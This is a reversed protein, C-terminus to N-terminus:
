KAEDARMRRWEEIHKDLQALIFANFHEAELLRKRGYEQAAPLSEITRQLVEHFREMRKKAVDFLKDWHDDALQYFDRRDGPKVVRAIIGHQELLRTNTSASTKSIQLAEALEDLTFPGENLLLFGMIRGAIRPFGDQEAVMCFKEIFDTGSTM